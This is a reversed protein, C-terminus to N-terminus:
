PPTIPKFATDLLPGFLLRILREDATIREGAVGREGFAIVAIFRFKEVKGDDMRVHMYHELVIGDDGEWEGIIDRGVIRPRLTKFHYEYYKRANDYGEMRLGLPWVEYFYPAEMTALTQELDMKAEVAAHLRGAKILAPTNQKM